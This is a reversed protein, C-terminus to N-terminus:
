YTDIAMSLSDSMAERMAAEERALHNGAVFRNTRMRLECFQGTKAPTGFHWHTHQHSRIPKPALPFSISVSLATFSLLNSHQATRHHEPPSTGVLVQHRVWCGMYGWLSDANNYVVVSLVVGM